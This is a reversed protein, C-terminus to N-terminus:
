LTKKIERNFVEAQDNTQPHYPIAIRHIVGYKELLFTMARNCFHTGQDSIVAKPVDFMCFINSKLFDVVVKADNTITAIEEVRQEYTSVFKHADQYITPWYFGCDLVKRATETSGYHDGRPSSHCFHIVLLFEANPICRRTIQDNCFRWLYPDDWVYYKAESELKAKYARSADPPFTSAVLFNCIDVFWPQSQAIQLLQEDPFNDRIPM